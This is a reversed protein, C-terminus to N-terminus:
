FNEIMTYCQTFSSSLDPISQQSEVSQKITVYISLCDDKANTFSEFWQQNEANIDTNDRNDNMTTSLEDVIRMVEGAAYSVTTDYATQTMVGSPLNRQVEETLVIIRDVGKMFQDSIEANSMFGGPQQDTTTDTTDEPAQPDSSEGDVATNPDVSDVNPDTTADSNNDSPTPEILQNPDTQDTNGDTAPDTSDEPTAIIANPDTQDDAPVTAPDTIDDGPSTGPQPADPMPSDMSPENMANPDTSQATTEPATELTQTITSVPSINTIIPIAIVALGIMLIGMIISGLGQKPEPLILDPRVMGLVTRPLVSAGVETYIDVIRGTCPATVVRQTTGDDIIVIPEGSVVRSDITHLWSSVSLRPMQDFGADLQIPQDHMGHTDGVFFQMALQM